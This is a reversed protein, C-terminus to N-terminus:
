LKSIDGYLKNKCITSEEKEKEAICNYDSFRKREKM